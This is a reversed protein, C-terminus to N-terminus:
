PPNTRYPHGAPLNATLGWKHALYGEVRQRTAQDTNQVLIVEAVTVHSFRAPSIQAGLTYGDVVATPTAINTTTGELLGNRHIQWASAGSPANAQFAMVYGTANDYATGSSLDYNFSGGGGFYYPYSAGLLNSNKVYHLAGVDATGNVHRVGIVPRYADGSGNGIRRFVWYVGHTRNALISNVGTLNMVDNVGDFTVGPQGFFSSASYDPQNAPTPQTFHRANGSRDRWQSVGTAVTITSPDTADLWLALGSGLSAPTWGSVSLPTSGAISTAPDTATITTTGITVATAVGRSGAANSITAVATSSSSWTVATTLDQTTGNTYTGTATFAQTQGVFVSPSALTVGISVLQAATVTLPTSGTISTAPDTATITTSGIAFTSALGRSGDANSISAVATTSSSWTVVATLDQTTANTYTGTATFARTLGLPVSPNTPTVGISVLQAATVTFATSGAIGTAPDTATITTSGIAFTSALGRSGDANSISAVATTSSSWTVVATLDQTTANTYTGTATFARTLGLPVSPNTPTVAISVLAAGTVTLPASGAIGTAPDTAIITTSGTALTSALGRSGDANSISAVATTSSSWTVATTLDQTTANTYTGTATFARTLGLPVSTATPTVAISVLAAGTVTFATSGAIGTAPDTATITTSGIALTTAVGRSGDANSITAVATSSSSWTVASTLDQTTGNTYTGTATFARALGLPVSTATPTVAMSVLAAGTVTLPASGAIGTAPDTATITSSGIALTTAVGRSGDANSISAVTSASTSWTVVPTLDQTTGDTYTGTATFARTLGLPVSLATPTVAISVLRAM